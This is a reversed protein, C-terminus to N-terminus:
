QVLLQAIESVQEFIHAPAKEIFVAERQKFDVARLQYVLVCGQTKMGEPLIVELKNGRITSTIPAVIVLEVHANFAKKSIVFALRRKTIERGSSPEFDLWIIDAQEPIYKM